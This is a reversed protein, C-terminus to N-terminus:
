DLLRETKTGPFKRNANWSTFVDSTEDIVGDIIYGKVRKPALHMVRSTLLTGYSAGYVFVESNKGNLLDVLLEVDKAASTVSFAEPHNDIKFMIDKVCNPIEALNVNVGNPSGAAFAQAAQCELYNSRGTGRHDVTYLDVKGDMTRNFTLM